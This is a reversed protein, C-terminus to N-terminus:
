QQARRADVLNEPTAPAPTSGTPTHPLPDPEQTSTRSQGKDQSARGMMGSVAAVGLMVLGLPVFILTFIGGSAVGGIIGVLLLFGAIMYFWM